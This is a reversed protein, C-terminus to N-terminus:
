QNEDLHEKLMTAFKSGQNTGAYQELITVVVRWADKNNQDLKVPRLDGNWQHWNHLRRHAETFHQDVWNRPLREKLALFTLRQSLTANPKTQLQHMSTKLKAIWDLGAQVYTALQNVSGKKWGLMKLRTVIAKAEDSVDNTFQPNARLYAARIKQYKARFSKGCYAQPHYQDRLHQCHYIMIQDAESPDINDKIWLLRLQRAEKATSQKSWRKLRNIATLLEIAMLLELPSCRPGTKTTILQGNLGQM